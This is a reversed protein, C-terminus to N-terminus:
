SKRNKRKKGKKRAKNKSNKKKRKLSKIMKRIKKRIVRIFLFLLVFVGIIIFFKNNKRNIEEQYRLVLENAKVSVDETENYNNFFDRAEENLLEVNSIKSNLNKTYLNVLENVSVPVEYLSPVLKSYTIKSSRNNEYNSAVTYLVDENFSEALFEIGYAFGDEGNGMPVTISPYNIVSGLSSGPIIAGTENYRYVKNKITPYVIVDLDYKDFIEKVYERYESKQAETKEIAKYHGGCGDLYGSLNYIHGSSTALDKFSRISGTTGKIYDNFYDCMTIGAYTSTSITQYYGTLLNDFYILNAGAKELDNLAVESLNKVFPDTLKNASLSSSENGILYNNVVGINIGDLNDSSIYKTYEKEQANSTKDDKNDKGDITELLLANDAVSRTIPGVVDRLVDYPIVGTRSVNNMTPRLGVLGAGAAPARVSSNTDTGLAASAFSAAVAVASGGSSGYPTFENNFVNKVFGYSSQSNSASFALESMNTSGLIIAGADVLKQVVFSNEIPYNNKLAKTGGTTPIGVVDINCKVLIPIGHLLGRIHGEKREQDLAKAEEIAKENIQNISNFLSDYEEIREFYIKVLNESSIIGKDMAQQLDYISMNVVDIPARTLASVRVFSLSFVLGVFLLRRIKIRM